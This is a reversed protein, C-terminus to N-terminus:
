GRRRKEGFVALELEGSTDFTVLENYGGIARDAVFVVPLDDDKCKAKLKVFDLTASDGAVDLKTFPIDKAQLLDCVRGLLRVNRDKEFYVTVPATIVTAAPASATKRLDALKTEADRRQQLEEKSCLPEGLVRNLRRALDRQVRLPAIGDGVKSTIAAHLSTRLADRLMPANYGEGRSQAV